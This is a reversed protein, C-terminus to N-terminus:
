ELNIDRLQKTKYSFDGAANPTMPYVGPSTSAHINQTDKSGHLVGTIVPTNRSGNLFQILVNCGIGPVAHTGQAQNTRYDTRYSGGYTNVNASSGPKRTFPDHIRRDWQYAPAWGEGSERMTIDNGEVVSAVDDEATYNGLGDNGTVATSVYAYVETSDLLSLNDDDLSGSVNKGLPMKYQEGDKSTFSVGDIRVLVTNKPRPGLASTNTVDTDRIVKGIYIM